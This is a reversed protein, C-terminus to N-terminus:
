REINRNKTQFQNKVVISKGFTCNLLEDDWIRIINKDLCYKLNSVVRSIKYFDKDNSYYYSSGGTFERVSDCQGLAIFNPKDVAKLKNYNALIIKCQPSKELLSEFDKYITRSETNLAFYPIISGDIPNVLLHAYSIYEACTPMDVDIICGHIKGSGGLQKIFGAIQEQAVTYRHMLNHINDIYKEMNDYYYPLDSVKNKLLNKRNGGSLLYLKKKKSASSSSGICFFMYHGKRKLMYLKSAGNYNVVINKGRNFDLYREKSITFIGDPYVSFVDHNSDTVFHKLAITKCHYGIQNDAYIKHQENVEFFNRHDHGSVYIWRPVYPDANWNNKSMHTLVIVKNEPISAKLKQYILDFRESESIEKKLAEEKSVNEFSSGYRIRSSNYTTNLGSFGIGGLILLPCHFTKERIEESTMRLIQNETFTFKSFQSANGANLFIADYEMCLLENHLCHVKINEFFSKYFRINDEMEIQPSWLEHNGLVVVIHSPDWLNVLEEFFAKTFEFKSSVDGAILLFSSNQRSGASLVMNRVFAKISDLANKVDHIKLELHIDSIYYYQVKVDQYTRFDSTINDFNNYVSVKSCQCDANSGQSKIQKKLALSSNGNKNDSDQLEAPNTPDNIIESEKEEKPPRNIETNSSGQSSQTENRNMLIIPFLVAFILFGIMVLM